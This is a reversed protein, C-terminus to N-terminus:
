AKETKGHNPEKNKRSEKKSLDALKSVIEKDMYFSVTHFTWVCAERNEM